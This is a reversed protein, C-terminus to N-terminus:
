TGPDYYLGHYGTAKAGVDIHVDYGVGWEGPGPLVASRVTPVRGTGRVYGVEIDGPGGALYYRTASGTAATGTVPDTVGTAGIRSDAAIGLNEERVPNFVGVGADSSGGGPRVEASRVLQRAAFLLDTPVILTNARINLPVGDQRQSMMGTLASQLTAGALAGASGLNAHSAHFLAISDALVANALLIYYVLDPRVRAAAEGMEMPMAQLANLDDNIIDMDDVVFQASYRFARYTEGTDDASVHEAQGGRAHRTLAPVKGLRARTNLRFDPVTTERTWGLTTDGLTVYRDLLAKNVVSSMATAFAATSFATRVMLNRSHPVNREDMILALRAMDVLSFDRFRDSQECTNALASRESDGLRHIRTDHVMRAGQPITLVDRESCAGWTGDSDQRMSMPDHGSRQLLAAALVGADAPIPSHVHGAPAPAGVPATRGRLRQAELIVEAPNLAPDNRLRDRIDPGAEHEDCIRDIAAIRRREEDAAQRRAEAIPDADRAPPAPPAPPDAPAPPAPPAVRRGPQDQPPTATPIQTGDPVLEEARQREAGTLFAAATLVEADSADARVRGLGVLYQRLPDMTDHEQKIEARIKAATDAGIPVLSVERAMWTHSVRLVRTGDNDFKRGRVTRSEGPQLDVYGNPDVRYGISVDTIHGERVKEFATRDRETAGSFHITAVKVRQSGRRETRADRASGLVADVGGWAMHSDLLPMREAFEGGDILLIEDIVRYSRMDLVTVREETAVVAEVTREGEDLSEARFTMLRNVTLDRRRAEPDDLAPDSRREGIISEDTQM